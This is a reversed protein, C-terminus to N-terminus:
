RTRRGEYAERENPRARRVSIIRVRQQRLTFFAVWVRQRYEALMAFRSETDSRAPILLRDEDEWLGKAEEFDIGHKEKNRASKGRDYEFEM